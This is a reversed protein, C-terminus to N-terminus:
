LDCAPLPSLCTFLSTFPVSISSLHFFAFNQHCPNLPLQWPLRPMQASGSPPAPHLIARLPTCVCLANVFALLAWPM